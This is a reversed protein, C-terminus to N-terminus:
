RGIDAWSTSNVGIDDMANVYTQYATRAEGLHGETRLTAVLSHHAGEDYPDQTLVRRLLDVADAAQSVEALRRASASFRARIEARLPASWDDYRDNPLFEGDYGAVILMDDNQVFWREIDVDINDRDLRISSRDAVVGGGLIRRVASLQVSLRASLRDIECAEPWLLEM